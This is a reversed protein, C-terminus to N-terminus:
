TALCHLPATLPLGGLPRDERHRMMSVAGVTALLFISFPIVLITIVFPFHWPPPAYLQGFYYQEVPLRGTTMFGVYATLHKLSDHYLWPWSLFFVGIGILYMLALRIFLFRRPWFLLTWTPL